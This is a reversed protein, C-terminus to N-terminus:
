EAPLPLRAQIWSLFDRVPADPELPATGFVEITLPYRNAAVTAEGPLVGGLRVARVESPVSVSPFVGIAGPDEAVLQLMAEPTPAYLTGPWPGLDGLIAKRFSEGAPEGPLPLVPQVAIDRGGSEAWSARGSFLGALEKPELDRVPNDPHVIVVLAIRGLPTAFWGDPPEGSTVVLEAQGDSVLEIGQGRTRTELDFPLPSGLAERYAVAMEVLAPEFYPQTVVRRLLAPTPTPAACAALLLGLALLPTSTRLSM